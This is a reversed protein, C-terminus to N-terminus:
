LGLIASSNSLSRGPETRMPCRRVVMVLPWARKGIAGDFYLNRWYPLAPVQTLSSIGHVALITSSRAIMLVTFVSAILWSGATVYMQVPWWSGPRALM